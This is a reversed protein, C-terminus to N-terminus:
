IPQAAIWADVTGNSSGTGFEKFQYTVRKCTLPRAWTPSLDANPTADAFIKWTKVIFDNSGDGLDREETYTRWSVADDSPARSFLIQVQLYKSHDAAWAANPHYDIHFQLQPASDVRLGKGDGQSTAEVWTAANVPLGTCLPQISISIGPFGQPGM